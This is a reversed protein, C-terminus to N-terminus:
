KYTGHEEYYKKAEEHTLFIPLNSIYPNVTEVIYSNGENSVYRDYLYGYNKKDENVIYRNKLAENYITQISDRLLAQKDKKDNVLYASFSEILKDVKNELVQINQTSQKLENEKTEKENEAQRWKQALNYVKITATVISGVITFGCCLFAILTTASVEKLIEQLIQM